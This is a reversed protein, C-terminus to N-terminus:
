AIGATARYEHENIFVEWVANAGLANDPAQYLGLIRLQKSLTLPSPATTVTSTDIEMASLGTATSGTGVVIDANRGVLAATIGVPSSSASDEQIAFVADPDTVVYCYRATSAVRYQKSLDDRNPEFAVVVGLIANGAAAQAVTRIGDADASGASKVADGIFVATSDTAPIFCKEVTFAGGSLRRVPRFGFAADTNAM